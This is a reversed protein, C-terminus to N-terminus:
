VVGVGGGNRFFQVPRTTQVVGEEIEANCVTDARANDGVVTQVVAAADRATFDSMHGNM